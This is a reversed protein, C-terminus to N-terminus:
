LPRHLLLMAAWYQIHMALVHPAPCPRNSQPKYDLHEPLDLSWQTLRKHLKERLERGPLVNARSVRYVKALIEGVLVDTRSSTQSHAPSISSPVSMTCVPSQLAGRLPSSRPAPRRMPPRTPVTAVDTRLRGTGRESRSLSFSTSMRSVPLVTMLPTSFDGEHVGITRGLFLASFRYPVHTM